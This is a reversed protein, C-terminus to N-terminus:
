KRRRVRERREGGIRDIVWYSVVGIVVMAFCFAGYAIRWNIGQTMMSYESMGGIGALLNLPMFVINIVTLRKILVNLNNSVVSARADMLGSLVQSYIQAQEYCQANEIALDDIFEINEASLGIKQGNLRLKEIVRGNSGIANLYFVLSKELTFMNLLQENGMAKNVERELEDSCMSIVRLHEEFHFISRYIIKQVLDHLNTVRMFQKGDFLPLDENVVIVLKDSFLFLGISSVSFLFNDSANYRKPRKTILAVHEPEFEVRALENPDLASNLTHEDVRLTDILYRRESEDPNIYVSINCETVAASAIKCDQIKVTKLM